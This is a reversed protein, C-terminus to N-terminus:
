LTQLSKSAIACILQKPLGQYKDPNEQKIM